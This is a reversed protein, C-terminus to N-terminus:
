VIRIASITDSSNSVTLDRAEEAVGQVHALTEGSELDSSVKLKGNGASIIKNGIAVNQGDEILGNIVSGKNPLICTVRAGNEYVTDVTNGQLADEMAFLAEDGLEGGEVDHKIVQGSTNVKLLMGPYIGAEAAILEVQRYTGKSHIRNAM